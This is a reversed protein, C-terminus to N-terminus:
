ELCNWFNREYTRGEEIAVKDMAFAIVRTLGTTM